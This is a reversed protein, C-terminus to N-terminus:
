AHLLPRHQEREQLAPHPLVGRQPAQHDDRRGGCPLVWWERGTKLLYTTHGPSNGGTEICWFEHGRWKFDDMKGFTHDVAIPEIPPRVFSAGYVVNSGAPLRGVAVAIAALALLMAACSLVIVEISLGARMEATCM